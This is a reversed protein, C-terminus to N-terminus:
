KGGFFILFLTFLVALVVTVILTLCGFNDGNTGTPNDTLESYLIPDTEKIADLYEQYNQRRM